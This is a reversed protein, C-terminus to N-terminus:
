KKNQTQEIVETIKEQIEAIKAMHTLLEELVKDNSKLREAQKNAENKRLELKANVSSNSQELDEIRRLYEMRTTSWPNFSADLSAFFIWFIGCCTVSQNRYNTCSAKMKACFNITCNFLVWLCCMWLLWQCLKGLVTYQLNFDTWSSNQRAIEKQISYDLNGTSGCFEQQECSVVNQEITNLLSNAFNISSHEETRMLKLHQETLREQNGLISQQRDLPIFHNNKLNQNPDLIQGPSCMKLGTSTQCVPLGNDAYFTVPLTDICKNVDCSSVIIHDVPTIYRKQSEGNESKIVIPLNSCCYESETQRPYVLRKKCELIYGTEGRKFVKFNKDEPAILNAGNKDFNTLTNLISGRRQLCIDYLIAGITEGIHIQLHNIGFSGIQSLIRSAENERKYRANKTESSNFKCILLDEIQTTFCAKNCAKIPEQLQFAVLKEGSTEPLELKLTVVNPTSSDKNRRVSEYLRGEQKYLTQYKECETNPLKNTLDSTIIGQQSRHTFNSGSVHQSIGLRSFEIQQTALNIMGQEKEIELDFTVHVVRNACAKWSCAPHKKDVYIPQGLQSGTCTHDVHISTGHIFSESSSKGITAILEIRQHGLQIELKGSTFAKECQDSTLEFNERATTVFANAHSYQQLGMFGQGCSCHKVHLNLKCRTATVEISPRKFLIMTPIITANKYSQFDAQKCRQVSALNITSTKTSTELCEYASLHGFDQEGYSITRLEIPKEVVKVVQRSSSIQIGLITATCSYLGTDGIGAEMITLNESQKQWTMNSYKTWTYVINDASTRGIKHESQQHINCTLTVNMGEQIIVPTNMDTEESTNELNGTIMMVDEDQILYDARSSKERQLAERWEQKLNRDEQMQSNANYVLGLTLILLQVIVKRNREKIVWIIIVLLLVINSGVDSSSNISNHTSTKRYERKFTLIESYMTEQLENIGKIKLLYTKKRKLNQFVMGGRYVNSNQDTKVLEAKTEYNYWKREEKGKILIHFKTVEIKAIAQFKLTYQQFLGESSTEILEYRIAMVDITNNRQIDNSVEVCNYIGMFDERPKTIRIIYHARGTEIEIGKGKKLIRSNKYITVNTQRNTTKCVIELIYYPEPRESKIFKYSTHLGTYQPRAKNNKAQNPNEDMLMQGLKTWADNGKNVLKRTSTKIKTKIMGKAIETLLGRKTKEAKKKINITSNEKSKYEDKSFLQDEKKVNLYKISKDISNNAICMYSTFDSEKPQRIVLQHGYSNTTISARNGAFIDTEEVKKGNRTMIADARQCSNIMCNIELRSINKREGKENISYVIPDFSYNMSLKIKSEMFIFYQCKTESGREWADYLGGGRCPMKDFVLTSVKGENKKTHHPLRHGGFRKWDVVGKNTGKCNLSLKQGVTVHRVNNTAIAPTLLALIMCLGLTFLGLNKNKCCVCEKQKRLRRSKRIKLEETGTPSMTRSRKRQVMDDDEIIVRGNGDQQKRRMDKSIENEAQTMVEKRNSCGNNKYTNGHDNNVDKIAEAGVATDDVTLEDKSVQKMCLENEYIEKFTEDNEQNHDELLEAYIDNEEQTSEKFVESYIHDEDKSIPNERASDEYVESYINEGNEGSSDTKYFEQEKIIISNEYLGEEGYQVVCTENEDELVEDYINMEIETSSSNQVTRENANNNLLPMSKKNQSAGTEEEKDVSDEKFLSNLLNETVEASNAFEEELSYDDENCISILQDLRKYTYTERVTDIIQGEVKDQPMCLFRIKVQRIQGDAGPKGWEEVLALRYPTTVKTHPGEDARFAVVSNKPPPTTVKYKSTADKVMLTFLTSFFGGVVERYRRINTFYNNIDKEISIFTTPIREATGSNLLMAPSVLRYFINNYKGQNKTGARRLGIPVLNLQSEIILLMNYIECVGLTSKCLNMQGFAQRILQIRKEVISHNKHASAGVPCFSFELNELKMLHTDKIWWRGEKAIKMFASQKDAMWLLPCGVRSSISLLGLAIDAAKTSPVLATIVARTISCVGVIIYMSLRTNTRTNMTRTWHNLTIPGAMDIFMTKFAAFYTSPETLQNLHVRGEAQEMTRKNRLSCMRCQKCLIAHIGVAGIIDKTREGQMYGSDRGNHRLNSPRRILPNHAQVHKHHFLSISWALPSFGEILILHASYNQKKLLDLIENSEKANGYHSFRSKSFAFGTIIEAHTELHKSSCFKLCETSAKIALTLSAAQIATIYSLDRFCEAPSPRVLRENPIFDKVWPLNSTAFNGLKFDTKWLKRIYLDVSRKEISDEKCHNSERKQKLREFYEKRALDFTKQLGSQLLLTCVTAVDYIVYESLESINRKNSTMLNILEIGTEFFKKMMKEKMVKQDENPERMRHILNIMLRIQRVVHKGHLHNRFGLKPDLFDKRQTIYHLNQGACDMETIKPYGLLVSNNALFYGGQVYKHRLPNQNHTLMSEDQEVLGLDQWAPSFGEETLSTLLPNRAKVINLDEGRARTKFKRAAQITIVLIKVIKDYNQTLLVELPFLYRINEIGLDKNSGPLEYRAKIAKIVHENIGKGGQNTQKYLYNSTLLGYTIDEREQNDQGTSRTTTHSNHREDNIIPILQKCLLDNIQCRHFASVGFAKGLLDKGVLAVRINRKDFIENKKSLIYKSLVETIEKFKFVTERADTGLVLDAIEQLEPKLKFKANEDILKPTSDKLKKNFTEGSQNVDNGLGTPTEAAYKTRLESKPIEILHKLVANRIESVHLAHLDLALEMEESCIIISPNRTDFMQEGRIIEKLVVLVEALTYYTKEVGTKKQIFQKLTSESIFKYLNHLANINQQIPTLRSTTAQDDLTEKEKTGPEPDQKKEGREVNIDMIYKALLQGSESRRLELINGNIHPIERMMIELSRKHLESEELKPLDNGDQKEFLKIHPTYPYPNTVIYKDLKRCLNERLLHLNTSGGNVPTLHITRPENSKDMFQDLICFNLKQYNGHGNALTERFSALILKQVRNEEDKEMKGTIVICHLPEKKCEMKADLKFDKKLQYQCEHITEMGRDVPLCIFFNPEIALDTIPKEKFKHIQQIKKELRKEKNFRNTTTSAGRREINPKGKDQNRDKTQEPNPSDSDGQFKTYSHETVHGQDRKILNTLKDENGSEEM